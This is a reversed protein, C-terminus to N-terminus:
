KAAAPWSTAILLERPGAVSRSSAASSPSRTCAIVASSAPRKPSSTTTAIGNVAEVADVCAGEGLAAALM